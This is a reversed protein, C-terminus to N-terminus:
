YIKRPKGRGIYQSKVLSLVKGKYCIAEYDTRCSKCEALVVGNEVYKIVLTELCDYCIMEEMHGRM